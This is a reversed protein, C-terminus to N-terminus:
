AEQVARRRTRAYTLALLAVALVIAIWEAIPAFDEGVVALRAPDGLAGVAGAFAL